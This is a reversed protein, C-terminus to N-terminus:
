LKNYLAILADRPTDGQAKVLKWNIWKWAEWRHIYGEGVKESVPMIGILGEVMIQDVPKIYIDVLM